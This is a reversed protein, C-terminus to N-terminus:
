LFCVAEFKKPSLHATGNKLAYFKGNDSGFFLLSDSVVPSSFISGSTQFRNIIRGSHLDMCYLVGEGSGIYVKDNYIVPSSWVISGTNTKWIQQGTNSSVAQVFHKDSTGTVVVTDKVALSSIVWSVVHDVKWIEKGTNKNVAYFLGDRCGVIVKDDKITPSSIIARRDFGFDENKLSNGLTIFKWKEKGSTFDVAYLIGDVDGFYVTNNDVAATSRVINETQFKWVVQGTTENFKYVYGDKAGIIIANNFITPSSYYYDFAWDYNKNEGFDYKWVQKGTQADLAFLAQKNNSFFVKGKDLAPSSEISSGSNFMWKTKGTAKALAYFKGDSAGFFVTSSSAVATSRVPANANFSWAEDTFTIQKNTQYSSNHDPTGRFMATQAFANQAALGFLFVFVFKM